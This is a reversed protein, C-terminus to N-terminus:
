ENTLVKFYENLNKGSKGADDVYRKLKPILNNEIFYNADKASIQDITKYKKMFNAFEIRVYENYAPHNGHLGEELLKTYKELAIGNVADNMHFGAEAAKQVVPNDQLAWPVIHHAHLNTGETRLVRGLQNPSGFHILGSAKRTIKLFAASGDAFKVVKVLYKAGTATMGVIPIMAAFSLGANLKDGEALYWAGNVLDAVEGIVPAMGAMDLAFHLHGRLVNWNAMALLEAENWGKNEQINIIILATLEEIVLRQFYPDNSIPQIATSDTKGFDVIEIPKTDNQKEITYGNTVFCLM